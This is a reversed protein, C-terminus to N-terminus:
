IVPVLQQSLVNSLIDLIDYVYVCSVIVPIASFLM